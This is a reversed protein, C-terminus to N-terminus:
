SRARRGVQRGITRGIFRAGKTMAPVAAPRPSSSDNWVLGAVTFRPVAVPDDVDFLAEPVATAEPDGGDLEDPPEDEFGEVSEDFVDLEREVDESDDAVEVV